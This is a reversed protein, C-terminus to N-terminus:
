EHSMCEEYAIDYYEDSAAEEGGQMEEVFELFECAAAHCEDEPGIQKNTNANITTIGAIFAITLFIKKM